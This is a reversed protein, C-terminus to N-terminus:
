LWKKRRFYYMLGLMVSLMIAWVAAYGYRSKLEPMFEFNMGYIGAIFTVPIFISSMITLVKMVENMKNANTSLYIDMIGSLLDRYTEVTDIVRSTHDQLDRFFLHTNDTIFDSESRLINAVLDRTPWVHKRLSIVERKLQYLEILSKQDPNSIIEEEIRAVKDGIIELVHFYYDVVADMMAYFLYDAGLKRVRGKGQRLRNRIVDFADGGHPEQFSIVTNGALIISLQELVVKDEYTIMKMITLLYHEYDEYKARQDVHVIDELTLPHIDFHKGIQEILAIDHVGEVNIWKVMNDKVHGFCESIDYFDKEILETENFEILTIRVKSDAPPGVYHLTGPPAGLNRSNSEM